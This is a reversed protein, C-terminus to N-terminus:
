GLARLVATAAAAAIVVVLLPARLAIAAVAAALGAAREDLVLRAGDAFTATVVLGALVAPTVYPLLREALGPLRVGAALLPGPARLAYTAVALAAVLAWGTV